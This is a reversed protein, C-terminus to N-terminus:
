ELDPAILVRADTISEELSMLTRRCEDLKNNVRDYEAMNIVACESVDSGGDRKLQWDENHKSLNHMNFVEHQSIELLTQYAVGCKVLYNATKDM